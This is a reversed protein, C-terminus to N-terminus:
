MIKHTDTLQSMWTKLCINVSSRNNEGTGSALCM